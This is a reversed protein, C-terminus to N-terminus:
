NCASTGIPLLVVLICNCIAYQFNALSVNDPRWINSSWFTCSRIESLVEAVLRKRRRERKLHEVSRPQQNKSAPMSITVKLQSGM